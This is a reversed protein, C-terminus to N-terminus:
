HSAAQCTLLLSVAFGPLERGSNSDAVATRRDTGTASLHYDTSMVTVAGDPAPLLTQAADDRLDIYSRLTHWDVRLATLATM